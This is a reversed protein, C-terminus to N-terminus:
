KAPSAQDEVSISASAHCLIEAIRSAHEPDTIGHLAVLFPSSAARHTIEAYFVGDKSWLPSRRALGSRDSESAFFQCNPNEGNVSVTTERDRIFGRMKKGPWGDM